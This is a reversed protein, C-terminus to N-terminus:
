GVEVGLRERGSGVVEGVKGRKCRVRGGKSRVFAVKRGGEDDM